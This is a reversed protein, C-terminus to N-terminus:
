TVPREDDLEAHRRSRSSPARRACASCAQAGMSRAPRASRSSITPSRRPHAPGVVRRARACLAEPRRRPRARLAASARGPWRRTTSMPASPSRRAAGAGEVAMEVALFPADEVPHRRARGADGPRLPGPGEAPDHLVAAGAGAPRDAHGNYFWTGDAAIRMDIEGCYPPNWREVPPLGGARGAPGLAAVLRASRARSRRRSRDHRSTPSMIRPGRSRSARRARFSQGRRARGNSPRDRGAISAAALRAYPRRGTRVAPRRSM